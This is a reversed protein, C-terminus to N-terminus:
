TLDRIHDASIEVGLRSDLRHLPPYPADIILVCRVALSLRSDADGRHSIYWGANGLSQHIIMEIM